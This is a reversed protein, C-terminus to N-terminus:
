EEQPGGSAGILITITIPMVRISSCTTATNKLSRAVARPSSIPHAVLEDRQQHEGRMISRSSVPCRTNAAIPKTAEANASASHPSPAESIGNLALMWSSFQYGSSVRGSNM